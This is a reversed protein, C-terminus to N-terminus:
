SSSRGRGRSRRQRRACLATSGPATSLNSTALADLALEWDHGAPASGCMKRRRRRGWSSWAATGCCTPWPSREQRAFPQTSARNGAPGAVGAPMRALVIALDDAPRRRAGEGDAPRAARHEATFPGCRSAPRTTACPTSRSGRRVVCGRAPRAPTAPATRRSSSTLTPIRPRILVSAAEAVTRSSGRWGLPDTLVVDLPELRHRGRPLSSFVIVTRSRYMRVAQELPGLRQRLLISGGLLRKRHRARIEVALDDGEIREGALLKRGFEISGEAARPGSAPSSAQRWSGSGVVVLPTSGFAWSAVLAALGLGIAGSSRRRV